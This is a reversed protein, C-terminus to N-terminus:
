VMTSQWIAWLNVPVKDYVKPLDM